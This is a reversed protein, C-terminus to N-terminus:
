RLYMMLNADFMRSTVLLSAQYITEARSLDASVQAVDADREVALSSRLREDRQRLVGGIWDMDRKRGGTRIIEGYVTEEVAGLETLFARIADPDGAQLAVKLDELMGFLRVSTGTGEVGLLSATNDGGTSVVSFPEPSSYVIDLHTSAISVQMGPVAGSLITQLDGVTVATSFDVATTTGGVTVEVSGLPLNGALAEIDALNTTAALAPRVDRGTLTDAASSGRIGLSNATLGDDVDSVEIPGTGSLQLASGDATVAMTVAGGTAANVAAIADGVSSAGSLDVTWTMGNGDQIQISGPEWGAGLSLDDLATTADIRPALDTRGVLVSSRSGLFVEGPINITMDDLATTADIRPALDTRGVLVSSRSGLFVEGPINITMDTDPGTQTIIEENDGQYIVTPGSRVFPPTDTRHGSFIYNGEVSSNLTNLLRGIFNEVEIVANARSDPTATGSVERMILERVDMMVASMDQLATDTADVFSRSRGVNRIYQDNNAVLSSYRQIAVVGRPDDAFSLIRRMSGAQRQKLLLNALANNLDSVLLHSIYSDSIRISM